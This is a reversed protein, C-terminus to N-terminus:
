FHLKLVQKNYVIKFIHVFVFPLMLIIKLEIEWVYDSNLNHYIKLIWIESVYIIMSETENEHFM